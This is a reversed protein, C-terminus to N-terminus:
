PSCPAFDFRSHAHCHTPCAHRTPLAVERAMARANKRARGEVRMALGGPSANRQVRVARVRALVCITRVRRAVICAYQCKMKASAARLWRAGPSRRLRMAAHGARVRARESLVAVAGGSLGTFYCM